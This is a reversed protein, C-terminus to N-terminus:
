RHITISGGGIATTLQEADGANPQNDYIITESDLEWIKMRFRDPSGDSVTLMFGYQGQGNISGIGKLQARSGTIVLWDYRDASFKFNGAPFVFNTNGVPTKTGKQYRAVFGFNAKGTLSPDPNYAGAPSQIWGGGTVFAGAPDYIV